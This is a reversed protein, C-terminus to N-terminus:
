NKENLESSMVFLVLMLINMSKSQTIDLLLRISRYDNDVLIYYNFNFQFTYEITYPHVFSM